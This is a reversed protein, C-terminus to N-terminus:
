RREGEPQPASKKSKKYKYVEYTAAYWTTSFIISDDKVNWYGQFDKKFMQALDLALGPPISKEM